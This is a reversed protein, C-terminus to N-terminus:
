ILSAQRMGPFGADANRHAALFEDERGPKVRLRVVNFATMAREEQWGQPHLQRGRWTLAGVLANRRGAGHAAATEVAECARGRSHNERVTADTARNCRRGMARRASASAPMRRSSMSCKPWRM